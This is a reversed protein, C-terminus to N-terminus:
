FSSLLIIMDYANQVLPFYLRLQTWNLQETVDLEKRGGQVAACWAEKDMVLVQLKSLSRDM